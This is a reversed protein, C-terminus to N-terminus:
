RPELKGCLHQPGQPGVAPSPRCETGSIVEDLDREEKVPLRDTVADLREAEPCEWAQGPEGVTDEGAVRPCLVAAGPSCAIRKEM